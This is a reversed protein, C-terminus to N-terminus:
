ETLAAVSQDRPRWRENTSLKQIMNKGGRLEIGDKETVDADLHVDVQCGAKKTRIVGM